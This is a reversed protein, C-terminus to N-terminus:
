DTREVGVLHGSIGDATLDRLCGVLRRETHTGLAPEVTVSWLGDHEVPGDTIRVNNVHSRCARWLLLAPDQDPSGTRAKADFTIVSRSGPGGSDTHFKMADSMATVGAVAVVALVVALLAARM